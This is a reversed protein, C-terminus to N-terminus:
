AARRTRPNVGPGSDVAFEDHQDSGDESQAILEHAREDLEIEDPTKWAVYYGAGVFGIGAMFCIIDVWMMYNTWRTHSPIWVLTAFTWLLLFWGIMRLGKGSDDRPIHPEPDHVSM